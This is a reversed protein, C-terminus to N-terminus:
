WFKNSKVGESVLRVSICRNNNVFEAWLTYTSLTYAFEIWKGQMVDKTTKTKNSDKLNKYKKSIAGVFVM